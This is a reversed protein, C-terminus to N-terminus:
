LALFVGSHAWTNFLTLALVQAACERRYSKLDGACAHDARGARSGGQRGQSPLPWTLWGSGPRFTWYAFARTQKSTAAREMLTKTVNLMCKSAPETSCSNCKRPYKASRSNPFGVYRAAYTASSFVAGNRRQRPM